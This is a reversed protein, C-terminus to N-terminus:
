AGCAGVNEVLGGCIALKELATENERGIKFELPWGAVLTKMVPM